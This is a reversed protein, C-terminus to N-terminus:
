FNLGLTLTLGGTNVDKLFETFEASYGVGLYLAKINIGIGIQWGFQFRNATDLYLLDMDDEDFFDLKLKEGGAKLTVDGSINYTAHLGIYPVISIGEAGNVSFRYALNVPVNLKFIKETLKLKIGYLNENETHSNYCLNFGSEFYLPVDKSVSWGGQVGLAFGNAMDIDEGLDGSFSMPAYSVFIRGYNPFENAALTNGGTSVSQANAWESASTWALAFLLMRFFVKKMNNLSTKDALCGCDSM